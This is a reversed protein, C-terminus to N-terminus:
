LSPLKDDFSANAAIASIRSYRHAISDAQKERRLLFHESSGAKIFQLRRTKPLIKKMLDLQRQL